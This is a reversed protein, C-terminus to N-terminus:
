LGNKKRRTNQLSDIYDNSLDHLNKMDNYTGLSLELFVKSNKDDSGGMTGMTGPNFVALSDRPPEHPNKETTWEENFDRTDLVGLKRRHGNPSIYFYEQNIIGQEDKLQTFLIGTQPIRYIRRGDKYEPKEGQPQNFIVLVTGIYGEPI